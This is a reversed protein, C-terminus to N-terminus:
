NAVPSSETSTDEDSKAPQRLVDWPSGKLSVRGWFYEVDKDGLKGDKKGEVTFAVKKVEPFQGYTILIAALALNKERDEADFNLVERDWDITITGDKLTVSRVKAVPQVIAIDTNIKPTAALLLDLVAEYRKTSDVVSPEEVLTRGSSYFVSVEETKEPVGTPEPMRSSSGSCGVLALSAVVALAAFIRLTRPM